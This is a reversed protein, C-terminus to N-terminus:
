TSRMHYTDLETLLKPAEKSVREAMVYGVRYGMSELQTIYSNHAFALQVLSDYKDLEAMDVCTDM